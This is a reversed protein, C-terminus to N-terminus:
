CNCHLDRWCSLRERETRKHFAKDKILFFLCCFLIMNAVLGIDIVM